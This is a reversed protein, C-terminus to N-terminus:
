ALEIVFKVDAGTFTVIIVMGVSGSLRGIDVALMAAIGGLLKVTEVVSSDGDM